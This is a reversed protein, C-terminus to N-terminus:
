YAGVERMEGMGYDLHSVAHFTAACTLELLTACAPDSSTDGNWTAGIHVGQAALLEANRRAEPPLGLATFEDGEPAAVRVRRLGQPLRRMHKLWSLDAWTEHVHLSVQEYHGLPVDINRWM